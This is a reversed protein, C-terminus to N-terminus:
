FRFATELNIIRNASTTGNGSALAISRGFLPSNLTGVRPALNVQNFLNQADIGFNLTYRRAIQPKKGPALKPPTSGAPPKIEPGFNFDRQLSANVYFLGPGHGYNNPIITQGAIPSTDFNGFRTLVVSPRTLDTAFSPRDNFISDGNLDEGVTINFPTGTQARAYFFTSFGFPLRVSAGVSAQHRFDTSARGEDAGIDYPNSPFGAANVDATDHHFTYNGFLFYKGKKFNLFYNAALRNSRFVGASEYQYINQNTGFPRVGSTPVAINYTGPLPANINDTLLQHVGRNELYSVTVSGWTKLQRELSITSSFFYPARLTPSIRYTTSQAQNGALLSSLNAPNGTPSYFQPDAIIYQQQTIGNQREAQLVYGSTFRTYFIGAGGRLMYLAPKDKRTKLGWAFGFRPAWDAHDAIVNQTEFRLGGSLTFSPKAKWDDQFFLAGDAVMVAVNPNGQTISFQSAGGGAQNLLTAQYSNATCTSTLTLCAFSYTGNYNALSHNADRTARFRGGFTFFQKGAAASVYNQLEYRDQNDNYSAGSNGGGTFAGAVSITPASSDPTQTVRSRTYQFRTDNVIKKSLIQSNSLQFIQIMSDNNYGQSPLSFQGIGANTQSSESASYRFIVTSKEGFQRDIRPSIFYASSPAPVAATLFIPNFNADLTQADILGNTHSLQDDGSLFFSTHKDIPGSFDGFNFVSYYPPQGTVFPNLTNFADDNAYTYFDAHYKNSGPKTFIQIMGNGPNTDNQASYPNQNIRIERITDRPPLTGGSFGDVYIDPSQGGSLGQLEQMLETSDLPLDDIAKGKLTLSDGNHNPDTDMSTDDNVTVQQAQDEIKLRVDLTLPKAASLQLPKSEFTAFGPATVIVVFTSGPQGTFTYHGTRNTLAVVDPGSPLAHLTVSAGPILAGSPDTILGSITASPQQAVASLSFTGFSLAPLLLAYLLISRFRIRHSTV